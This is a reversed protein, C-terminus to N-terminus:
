KQNGVSGVHYIRLETTSGKMTYEGFGGFITHMHALSTKETLEENPLDFNKPFRTSLFVSYDRVNPVVICRAVM